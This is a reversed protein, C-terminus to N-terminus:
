ADLLAVGVGAAAVTVAASYGFSIKITSSPPPRKGGGKENWPRSNTATSTWFM